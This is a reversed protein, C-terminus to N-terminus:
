VCVRAMIWVGGAYREDGGEDGRGQGGSERRQVWASILGGRGVVGRGEQTGRVEVRGRLEQKDRKEECQPRHPPLM